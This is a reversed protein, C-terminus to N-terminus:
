CCTGKGPAKDPPVFFSTCSTKDPLQGPTAVAIEQEQKGDWSVAMEVDDGGTLFFSCALLIVLNLQMQPPLSHSGELYIQLSICACSIKIPRLCSLAAAICAISNTRLLDLQM